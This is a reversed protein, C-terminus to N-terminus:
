NQRCDSLIRQRAKIIRVRTSHDELRVQIIIYFYLTTKFDIILTDVIRSLVRQMELIYAVQTDVASFRGRLHTTTPSTLFYVPFESTAAEKARCFPFDKAHAFLIM